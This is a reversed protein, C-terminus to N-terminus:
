FEVTGDPLDEQYAMRMMEDITTYGEIRIRGSNRSCKGFALCPVGNIKYWFGQVKKIGHKTYMKLGVQRTVDNEEMM